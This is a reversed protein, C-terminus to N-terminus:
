FIWLAKVGGDLSSTLIAIVSAVYGFVVLWIPLALYAKYFFKKSEHELKTELLYTNKKEDYNEM